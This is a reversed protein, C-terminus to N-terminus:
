ERKIADYHSSGNYLLEIPTKDKGGGGYVYSIGGSQRVIVPRKYVNAAASLEMEGGWTGNVTMSEIYKDYSVHRTDLQDIGPQGRGRIVQKPTFFPLYVARNFLLEKVIDRRVVTSPRDVFVAISSFLCNGDGPSRVIMSSTIKGRTLLGITGITAIIIGTTIIGTNKM